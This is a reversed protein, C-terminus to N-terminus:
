GAWRGPKTRKLESKEGCGLRCWSRKLAGTKARGERRVVWGRQADRPVIRVLERWQKLSRYKIAKLKIAIVTLTLKEARSVRQSSTAHQELIVLQHRPLLLELDKEGESLRGIRLWDLLTSFLHM